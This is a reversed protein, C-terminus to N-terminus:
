RPSLARSQARPLGPLPHIRATPPAKQKARYWGGSYPLLYAFHFHFFLFVFQGLGGQRHLLQGSIDRVLHALLQDSIQVLFGCLVQLLVDPLGLFLFGPVLLDLSVGLHQGLAAQELHQYFLLVDLQTLDGLLLLGGVQCLQQLLQVLVVTQHHEAQQFLFHGGLGEGIHGIFGPIVQDVGEGVHLQDAGNLLHAQVIGGVQQLIHGCAHDLPHQLFGGLLGTLAQVLQQVVGLARGAAQHGRFIDPQFFLHIDPLRQIGDPPLALVGLGDIDVINHLAVAQLTNDRGTVQQQCVRIGRQDINHVVVHDGHLNGIVLLEHGTLHLAVVKGCHGNHVVLAHKHANDGDVICDINQGILAGLIHLLHGGNQRCILGRSIKAGTDPGVGLLADGPQQDQHQRGGKGAHDGGM